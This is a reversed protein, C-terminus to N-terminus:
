NNWAREYNKLRLKINDERRQGPNGLEHKGELNGIHQQERGHIGYTGGM